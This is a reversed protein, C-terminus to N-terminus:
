EKLHGSSIENEGVINHLTVYLSELKISSNNLFDDVALGSKKLIYNELGIFADRIPSLSQGDLWIFEYSVDLEQIFNNVAVDSNAPSEMSFINVRTITQIAPFLARARELGAEAAFAFYDSYIIFQDTTSM